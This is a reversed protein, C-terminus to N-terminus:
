LVLGQTPPPKTVPESAPEASPVQDHDLSSSNLYRGSTSKQGHKQEETEFITAKEMARQGVEGASKAVKAYAGTVWSAGSLVYRNKMIASGANNIKQEAAILVSRTKETVQYKEDVAKVQQNVAASGATIKQTIGIKKDLSAVRASANASLQSANATIHHKEDLAKARAMANHGLVFGRALMNSFVEQARNSSVPLETAYAHESPTAAPHSMAPSDSEEAASITVAQDVVTAGSLLLATDLAQADKFTVFAIQSLEGDKHLEIHEIEGSFSFFDQIDHETAKPSVNSVRVTNTYENGAAGADHMGLFERFRFVLHSRAASVDFSRCSDLSCSWFTSVAM